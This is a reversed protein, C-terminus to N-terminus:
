GKEKDQTRLGFATISAHILGPNDASLTSFGIGLEDLRGAPEADIVVDSRQVLRRLVDRGDPQELDLTIGRKSTQYHWWHLSNEPGPRDDVFPPYGRAPAGAPPEVKIVDAGMDGLLKGAFAGVESALEIVTIGTLATM